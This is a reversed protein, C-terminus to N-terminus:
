SEVELTSPVSDGAATESCRINLERMEDKTAVGACRLTCQAWGVWRGLKDPPFDDLRSEVEALMFRLHELGIDEGPMEPMDRDEALAVTERLARLQDVPM